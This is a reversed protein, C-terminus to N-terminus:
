MLSQVSRIRISTDLCRQHGGVTEETSEGAAKEASGVRERLARHGRKAGAGGQCGGCCWRKHVPSGWRCRSSAGRAGALGEDTAAGGDDWHRPKEDTTEVVGAFLDVVGGDTIGGTM